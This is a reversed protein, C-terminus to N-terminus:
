ADTTNSLRHSLHPAHQHNCGVVAISVQHYVGVCTPRVGKVRHVRHGEDKDRRVVAYQAPHLQTLTAAQAIDAQCHQIYHAYDRRTIHVALAQQESRLRIPRCYHKSTARRLSSIWASITSWLSPM